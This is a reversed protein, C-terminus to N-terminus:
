KDQGCIYLVSIQSLKNMNSYSESGNGGTGLKVDKYVTEIDKLKERRQNVFGVTHGQADSHCMQDHIAILNVDELLGTLYAEATWQLVYVHGNSANEM